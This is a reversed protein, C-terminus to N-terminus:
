ERSMDSLKKTTETDRIRWFFHGGLFGFFFGVGFTFVPYKFSWEYIMFSISAETSEASVAFIDYVIWSIVFLLSTVIIFIPTRSKWM